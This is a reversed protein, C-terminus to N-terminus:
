RTTSLPYYKQTTKKKRSVVDPFFASPSLGL